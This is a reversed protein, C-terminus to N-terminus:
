SSRGPVHEHRQEASRPISPPVEARPRQLGWTQPHPVRADPYFFLIVYKGRYDSLNINVFEDDFVAEASFDPARGGGPPAALARTTM